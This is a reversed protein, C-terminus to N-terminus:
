SILHLFEELVEHVGLLLTPYSLMLLLTSSALLGFHLLQKRRTASQTVAVAGSSDAANLLAHVRRAVDPLDEEGLFYAGTPIPPHNCPMMRSVKILASALSLPAVKGKQVAYSDACEESAAHWTHALERAGSLFPLVAPSMRALWRKLNDRAIIHGIEHQLTAAFEEGNLADFVHESIFLRPRLAGIIAVVPFPDELKYATLKYAPINVGPLSVPQSRQLWDRLILRSRNWSAMGQLLAHALLLASLAALLSLAWGIRESTGRPELIFYSPIVLFLICLASAAAPLIRLLFFFTARPRAAATKQVLRFVFNVGVSFCANLLFFGALALSAGLAFYM